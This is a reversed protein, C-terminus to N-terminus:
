LVGSANSASYAGTITAYYFVRGAATRFYQAIASGPLYVFQAM